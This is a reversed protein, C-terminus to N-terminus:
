GSARGLNRVTRMDDDGLRLDKIVLKNGWWRRVLTVSVTNTRKCRPCTATDFRLWRGLGAPAAGLLRFFSWDRAKLHSSVEAAPAPAIRVVDQTRKCFSRCAHCYPADLNRDTVALIVGLLFLSEIGLFLWLQLETVLDGLVPFAASDLVEILESLSPKADIYTPLQTAVKEPPYLRMASAAAYSILMAIGLALVFVVRNRVKRRRLLAGSVLATVVGSVPVLSVAVYGGIQAPWLLEATAYAYGVLVAGAAVVGTLIAGIV